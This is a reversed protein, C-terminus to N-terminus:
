ESKTANTGVHEPLKTRQFVHIKIGDIKSWFSKKLTTMGSSSTLSYAAAELSEGDSHLVIGNDAVAFYGDLVGMGASTLLVLDFGSISLSAGKKVSKQKDPQMTRSKLYNEDLRSSASTSKAFDLFIDVSVKQHAVFLPMWPPHMARVLNSALKGVKSNSLAAHREMSIERREKKAAERALGTLDFDFDRDREDEWDFGQYYPWAERENKCMGDVPSFEMKPFFAVQDRGDARYLLPAVNFVDFNNPNEPSTFGWYVTGPLLIWRSQRSEDDNLASKMAARSRKVVQDLQEASLPNGLSNGGQERSRFFFEPGILVRLTSCSSEADISAEVKEVATGIIGEVAALQQQFTQLNNPRRSRTTFTTWASAVVDTVKVEEGCVQESVGVSVGDERLGYVRLSSSFCLAVIMAALRQPMTALNLNLLLKRGM